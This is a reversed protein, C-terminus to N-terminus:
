IPPPAPRLAVAAEFRRRRTGVQGCGFAIEFEGTGVQCAVLVQAVLGEYALADVLLLVVGELGGARPAVRGARLGSHGAVLGAVGAQAGSLVADWDPLPANSM